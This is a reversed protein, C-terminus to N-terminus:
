KVLLMRLLIGPPTSFGSTTTVVEGNKVFVLTPTASVGWEKAIVSQNDNVVPFKYEHHQVYGNLKQNDGSSIAVSVVSHSDSLWNITPSVFRCISCWSAWFYIIVPQDQSLAKIDIIEGQISTLVLNPTEGKAISQGRWVDVAVGVIIFIGVALLGTLLIHKIRGCKSSSTKESENGEVNGQSM